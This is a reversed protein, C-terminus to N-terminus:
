SRAGRAERDARFQAMGFDNPAAVAPKRPLAPAPPRLATGTAVAKQVAQKSASAPAPRAAEEPLKPPVWEPYEESVPWRAYIEWTKLDASRRSVAECGKNKFTASGASSKMGEQVLAWRGPFQKLHEIILGAKSRDETPPEKWMIQVM